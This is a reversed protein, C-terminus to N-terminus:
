VNQTELIITIKEEVKTFSFLCKISDAFVKFDIVAHPDTSIIKLPLGFTKIAKKTELLPFPCRMGSCDICQM